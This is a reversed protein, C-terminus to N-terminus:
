ESAKPEKIFVGTLNLSEMPNAEFNRVRANIMVIHDDTLVPIVAAKDVVLQDCQALLDMRKKPDRESLAKEFLADFEDSQFKFTNVM